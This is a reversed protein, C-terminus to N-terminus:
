TSCCIALAKHSHPSYSSVDTGLMDDFIANLFVEEDPDTGDKSGTIPELVHVNSLQDDGLKQALARSALPRLVGLVSGRLVLQDKDTNNIVKVKFPQSRWPFSEDVM